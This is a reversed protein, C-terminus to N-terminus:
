AAQRRAQQLSEAPRGKSATSMRLMAPAADYHHGYAAYDTWYATRILMRTAADLFVQPPPTGLEDLTNHDVPCEAANTPWAHHATVPNHHGSQSLEHIDLHPLGTRNEVDRLGDALDELRVYADVCSDQQTDYQQRFHPDLLSGNLQQTIAFMLFQRFSLGRQHKLGAASKWQPVLVAQPWQEVDHGCRLFHLYSSVARTAPDRIVKVIFGNQTATKFLRECQRRYGPARFMKHQRYDHVWKSYALAEDLLGTHALFWKLVTTCGSKASWCVAVPFDPQQLPLLRHEWFADRDTYMSRIFRTLRSMTIPASPEGGQPPPVRNSDEDLLWRKRSM